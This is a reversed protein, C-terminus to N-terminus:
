IHQIRRIAVVKSACYFGCGCYTERVHRMRREKHARCEVFMGCGYCCCCFCFCGYVCVCVCKVTRVCECFSWAAACRVLLWWACGGAVVVVVVLYTTIADAWLEHNKALGNQTRMRVGSEGHTHQVTGAHSMPRANRCVSGGDDAVSAFVNCATFIRM